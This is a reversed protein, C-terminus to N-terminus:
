TLNICLRQRRGGVSSDLQLCIDLGDRVSAVEELHSRYPLQNFFGDMQGQTAKLAARSHSLSGPVDFVHAGGMDFLNHTVRADTSQVLCIEDRFM